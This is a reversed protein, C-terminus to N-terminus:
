DDMQMRHRLGSAGEQKYRKVLRSIQRASLDLLNGVSLNTLEGRAIQAIVEFRNVERESM